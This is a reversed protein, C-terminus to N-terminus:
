PHPEEGATEIRYETAAVGKRYEVGFTMETIAETSDDRLVGCAVLGDTLPKTSAILNDLDRRTRTPVIFTVRVRARDIGKAPWEGHGALGHEFIGDMGAAFAADKWDKNDAATTRWHRRANPTPPRGPITVVLPTATSRAAPLDTM